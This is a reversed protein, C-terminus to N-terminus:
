IVFDSDHVWLGAVKQQHDAILRIEIIWNGKGDHDVTDVYQGLRELDAVLVVEDAEGREAHTRACVLQLNRGVSSHNKLLLEGKRRSTLPLM